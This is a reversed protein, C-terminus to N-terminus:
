LNSLSILKRILELIYKIDNLKQVGSDDMGIKLKGLITIVCTNDDGLYFIILVVHIFTTFWKRHPM